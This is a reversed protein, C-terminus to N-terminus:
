TLDSHVALVAEALFGAKFLTQSVLSDIQQASAGRRCGIGLILTKPILQLASAPLAQPRDSLCILPM